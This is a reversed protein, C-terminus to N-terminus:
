WDNGLTEGGAPTCAAWWTAPQVSPAVNRVSGDALAVLIGGSRATQPVWYQCRDSNYPSPQVQFYTTPGTSAIAGAPIGASPFRSVSFVPTISENPAVAWANAGSYLGGAQGCISYKEAFLITNATGDCFTAPLRPNAWWDKFNGAYDVQCFVQANFAYGCAALGDASTQSGQIIGSSSLSPDLPDQYVKLPTAAIGPYIPEYPIYLTGPSAPPGNGPGATSQYLNGQELFPLLHFFLNGYGSTGGLYSPDSPGGPFYGFGPPLVGYSDQCQQVALALQHLNNSSQTRAAAERVKMVAPVLLGILVGLIALVVLMEALTFAAYRRPLLRAM